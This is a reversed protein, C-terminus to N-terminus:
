MELCAMAAARDQPFGCEEPLQPNVHQQACQCKGACGTHFINIESALFPQYQQVATMEFQHRFCHEHVMDVRKQVKYNHNLQSIRM